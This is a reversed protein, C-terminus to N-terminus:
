IKSIMESEYTFIGEGRSAAIKVMANAVVSGEIGRFKRFSGVFLFKLSKFIFIAFKEGSRKESRNGLLLSPRFIHIAPFPINKITLEMEGKVKNYFISSKPNAGMASVVLFQRTGKKQMIEALSVVYEYDVKRFAERSGAQKMTTGLCCYVDDASIDKLEYDLNNFDIVYERLKPHSIGTKKRSLQIISAYYDDALLIKVLESGILGTAGAVVAIKNDSTM